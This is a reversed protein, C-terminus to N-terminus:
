SGRKKLRGLLAGFAAKGADIAKAVQEPHEMLYAATREFNPVPEEELEEEKPADVAEMLLALVGASDQTFGRAAVATWIRAIQDETPQIFLGNVSKM